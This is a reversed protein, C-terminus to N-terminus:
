KDKEKNEAAPELALINTRLIEFRRDNYENTGRQRWELDQLRRNTKISNLRNQYCWVVSVTTLALALPGFTVPSHWVKNM